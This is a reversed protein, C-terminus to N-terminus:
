TGPIYFNLSDRVLTYKLISLFVSKFIKKRSVTAIYM